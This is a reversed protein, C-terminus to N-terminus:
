LMGMADPRELPKLAKFQGRDPLEPKGQSKQPASPLHRIKQPLVPKDLVDAQMEVQFEKKRLELM